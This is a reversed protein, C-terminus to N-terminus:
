RMCRAGLDSVADFYALLTERWGAIEPWQNIARFPEGSLIRPDDPALDLGINFAEKLDAPKTPDLSEGKMPVYGRNSAYFGETLAMKDEIPLAFLAHSAAFVKDILGPAIGHGSVYFFGIERAAHGLEAAIRELASAGGAELPSLDIIPLSADSM